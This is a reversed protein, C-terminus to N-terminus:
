DLHDHWDGIYFVAIRIRVQLNTGVEDLIESVLYRPERFLASFNM